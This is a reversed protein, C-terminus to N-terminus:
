KELHVIETLWAVYEKVLGVGFSQVDTFDLDKVPISFENKGIEIKDIKIAFSKPDLVTNNDNMVSLRPRIKLEQKGESVIEEDSTIIFKVKTKLKEIKLTIM